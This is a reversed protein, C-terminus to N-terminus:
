HGLHEAASEGAIRGSNFAFMLTLGDIQPYSGGWFGTAENGGAFLGPVPTGQADLVRATEDIRVGGLTGRVTNVVTVAHFPGEEVPHRLLAEPTFFEEDVGQRVAENYRAVAETLIEPDAGIGAALEELTAATVAAGQEVAEALAEPLQPQAPTGEADPPLPSGHDEAPALDLGEETLRRVTASDLIMRFSGGRQLVAAGRGGFRYTVSEDTFRRGTADFWPLPLNALTALAKSSYRGPVTLAPLDLTREADADGGAARVVERGTGVSKREGTFHLRAADISGLEQQVLEVNGVFGGTAVVVARAAVDVLVPGEEQDAAIDEAAETSLARSVSLPKGADTKVARVGLIRGEADTVLETAATETLVTGGADEIAKLLKKFGGFKSVYRHYTRASRHRALLGAGDPDEVPAPHAPSLVTKLGHAQLWDATQGSRGIVARVLREDSRHRTYEAVARFAERASFEEGAERQAASGYAAFGTAGFMAAGGPKNGKELLVVRVGREAAALAAAIGAGGAGLVVLEADHRETDERTEFAEPAPRPATSM